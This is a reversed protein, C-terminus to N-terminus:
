EYSEDSDISSWSVHSMLLRPDTRGTLRAWGVVAIVCVEDYVKDLLCFYAVRWSKRFLLAYFVIWLGAMFGMVVGISFPGIDFGQKSRMLHGQESADSKYCSKQLPPGCLGDNGDYLHHNQDYLTGLQTGSPIGGVLNNYSLNLFSLSSLDSLSQPIEGYLMNKSLDLSELSQMNGISYPIKGSLYNSSLNLNILRHLYTIDEPIVGTLLNSSLDITVVTVNEEDYELELGKMTVLSKYDCGSLREEHENTYYQKPVMGTLNALYQPLPGSISNSALDLHSLNGLKTISAPINGSFMNHKLRLIELKSFNGIWTPLNGSFKNWSLDLFSLETWGQLFSPFNGSFSNNSLRFFSMMSMGSCQPFEGDLLNNSLDLGHLNQLECISQPVNGTIRNSLLNLEALKPSGINLPLPGSLSNNSLDLTTLNRPMRPILGAIQNSKLYLKELSMNEMNTPLGGSIQNGPFELLKAKSFTTSFWDPFTDNIGADNMALAVIDVQSQLWRPFSPGMTISAFYAKELKFPPLWQPDMVIKLHNYCLYISKLSTLHAFHKETITGSMNNFHLYLNRLNTLMGIESPVQGTISNNFLDLTVLSTLRGIWNPLMGTLSNGALHVEKLKSPSCQPLSQFIDMINGYELRCDLDLVELNCLNKLNAKMTGMKGNKSVSMGMSDKHDDFSFDLVQLSLMNGLAQPIDGYLSTSSLNLHKLSTLNWIWSSEAPHNFDNNSLDLMELEKFSLEPLSQNASQLSCSSLSVIKLSPIMNLVHPWDVVTSLNVGDLKLYQLNSLHALWSGDNIYLFPVMGSLRIRSLDLYRLNSLNGLQPPVMGSFVIGSLNLYRLSRFSGLFEPVHGTSGALNNMSLDLYRLHELSILSQGIEGALATGAHDNRLRLKVVHGTRNSCRVGRWQCCDEQLQGGGRRWSALLGAPDDTVGEKFALLADRERPKCYNGIAAPPPSPPTTTAAQGDAAIMLLLISAAAAAAAAITPHRMLM